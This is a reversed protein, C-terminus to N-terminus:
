VPSSLDSKHTADEDNDGSMEEIRKLHERFERGIAAIKDPLARDMAQALATASAILTTSLRTNTQLSGLDRRLAREVPGIESQTGDELVWTHIEPADGTIGQYRDPDDTPEPLEPSMESMPEAYPTRRSLVYGRSGESTRVPWVDLTEGPALPEPEVDTVYESLDIAPSGDFPVFSLRSARASISTVSGRQPDSSREGVWEYHEHHNETGVDTWTRGRDRPDHVLICEPRLVWEYRGGSM